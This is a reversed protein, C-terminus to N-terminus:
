KIQLLFLHCASPKNVRFIQEGSVFFLEFYM